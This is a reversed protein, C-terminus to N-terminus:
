HCRRLGLGECPWGSRTERRACPPARRWQDDLKAHGDICTATSKDRVQRFTRDYGWATVASGVAADVLGGTRVRATQAEELIAGLSASVQVISSERANVVSLESDARFRSCVQEVSEFWHQTAELSFQGDAVM